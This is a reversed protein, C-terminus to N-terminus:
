PGVDTLIVRQVPRNSALLRSYNGSPVIRNGAESGASRIESLFHQGDINEFVIETRTIFREKTSSGVTSILMQRGEGQLSLSYNSERGGLRKITYSGAPLTTKGVTFPFSTTMKVGTTMQASASIAGAIMLVIAVLFFKPDTSRM